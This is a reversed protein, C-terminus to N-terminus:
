FINCKFPLKANVLLTIHKIIKKYENFGNFIKYCLSARASIQVGLQYKEKITYVPM